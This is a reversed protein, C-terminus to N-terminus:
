RRESPPWLKELRLATVFEARQQGKVKGDTTALDVPFLLANRVLANVVSEPQSSLYSVSPLNM